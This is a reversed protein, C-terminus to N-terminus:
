TSFWEEICFRELETLGHPSRWHVARRFDNWLSKIPNRDLSQSPWEVVKILQKQLGTISQSHTQPTGRGKGFDAAIPELEGAVWVSLSYQYRTAPDEELALDKEAQQFTSYTTM